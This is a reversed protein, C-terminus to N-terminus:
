LSVLSELIGSSYPALQYPPFFFLVGKETFVFYEYNQLNEKTGEMLWLTDVIKPNLLLDGRVNRVIKKLNNNKTLEEITFERNNKTDYVITWILHNPHAGGTYKSIFFVLSIYEKVYYIDSTVLFSYEKEELGEIEKLFANKEKELHSTVIQNVTENTIHPIKLNIKPLKPTKVEKEKALGVHIFSITSILFLMCLFVVIYEKRKM